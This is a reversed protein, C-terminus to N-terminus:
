SQGNITSLDRPFGEVGSDALQRQFRRADELQKFAGVILKYITRGRSQAVHVLVPQGFRRKFRDSQVIVNGYDHYAGVQIGWGERVQEDVEMRFLGNGSSVAEEVESEAQEAQPKQDRERRRMAETVARDANVRGYGFKRSHNGSYEHAPGIRDATQRLIDRVERATLGPNVSLMLACIGAVLPVASSTGGFHKYRDGRSRGDRWFRYVGTEYSLGEDWRARAAIIPWDGNSPACVDVERGRNAYAAHRDQSTCASVAIVDPHAAYHNVYDLGDNGVAFLIVCGKGNRGEQAARAIAKEKLSNLAFQPDTTGWSCSIIDAGKDLCYDFMRETARISFSTGSLPLFRANPAVGVMGSGNSAALAVSACPTGHTFRPDGQVLQRSNNWLDFPHVVKDRLDPHSLDFGNDIVAITLNNAGMGNIRRWADLIRADAGPQLYTSRGNIQGRNELQWQEDLLEDRPTFFDYTDVPADLDPEAVEVLSSQQLAAAVKVPNPSDPGVRALISWPGRRELMQLHFEDLALQQEEESVGEAFQIFLDGTAVMPRDSGEPYYVHTGLEVDKRERVEDLKRDTDKAGTKLSVLEFGGVNPLWQKEVYETSADSENKSKIGVLRKSKHLTLMGKGSKVKVKGM